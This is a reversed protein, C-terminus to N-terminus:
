SLWLAKKLFEPLNCEHLLREVPDFDKGSRFSEFPEILLKIWEAEKERLKLQEYGVQLLHKEKADRRSRKAIIGQEGSAKLNREFEEAAALRESRRKPDFFRDYERVIEPIVKDLTAQIHKREEWKKGLNQNQRFVEFLKRRKKEIEKEMKRATEEKEAERRRDLVSEAEKPLLPQGEPPSPPPPPPHDSIPPPAKRLFSAKPAGQPVPREAHPQSGARKRPGMRGHTQHVTENSFGENPVLEM